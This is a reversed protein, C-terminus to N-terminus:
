SPKKASYKRKMTKVSGVILAKLIEQDVDELTKITLCSKGTKCNGLQSMLKGFSSFGPMIYLTLNQKRPSFGVRPWSGEQGSAYRYDQTGFGVISTGWDQGQERNSGEDNKRHDPM